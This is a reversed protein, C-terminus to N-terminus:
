RGDISAFNRMGRGKELLPRFFLKKPTLKKKKGVPVVPAKRKQKIHVDKDIQSHHDGPKTNDCKLGFVKYSPASIETGIVVAKTEQPQERALKDM